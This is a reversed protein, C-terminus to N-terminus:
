NVTVGGRMGTTPSGHISCHYGYTGPNVLRATYTGGTQTVSNAPLPPTGTDWVVDHQNAGTWTFRVFTGAAVSASVPNFANDMVQIGAIPGATDTFVVPSGSVGGIRATDSNVGPSAGLTRTMAAIGSANTVPASSSLSGGGQGLAWTVTVGAKPNNYADRVIVTHPTPLAAGVPGAQFNGGDLAIQTANGAQATETFVVPSGALGAATAQVTQTGAVPGFTWTVSSLGSADTTDTSQSLLGGGATVTWAVIVGAQAANTQDRSLVVLPPVTAKVTDARAASGNAQITPGPGAGGGNGCATVLIGLLGPMSPRFMRM